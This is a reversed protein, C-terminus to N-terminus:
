IDGENSENNDKSPDSLLSELTADLIYTQATSRKIDVIVIYFGPTDEWTAGLHPGRLGNFRQDRKRLKISKEAAHWLHGSDDGEVRLGRLRVQSQLGDVNVLIELHGHLNLSLCIIPEKEVCSIFGGFLHTNGTGPKLNSVEKFEEKRGLGVRQRYGQHFALNIDNSYRIACLGNQLGM